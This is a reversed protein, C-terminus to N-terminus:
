PLLPNIPNTVSIWSYPIIMVSHQMLLEGINNNMIEYKNNIIQWWSQSAGYPSKPQLTGHDNTSEMAM